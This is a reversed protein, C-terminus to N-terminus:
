DLSIYVNTLNSSLRQVKSIGKDRTQKIECASKTQGIEICQIPGKEKLKVSIVNIQSKCGCTKDTHNTMSPDIGMNTLTSYNSILLIFKFSIILLFDPFCKRLGLTLCSFAFFLRVPFDISTTVRM